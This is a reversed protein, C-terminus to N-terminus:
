AGCQGHDCGKKSGTLHIHERLCDLLTTRPDLKLAYDKGNVKLHVDVANEVSISATKEAAHASAVGILQPGLTMAASTVSFQKLFQRRTGPSGFARGTEDTSPQDRDPPRGSEPEGDM